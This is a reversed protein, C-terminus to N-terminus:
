EGAILRDVLATQASSIPKPFTRELWAFHEDLWRRRAEATAKSPMPKDPRLIYSRGDRRRIRAAGERDCTDLVVAPQRDLERVTFTRMDSLIDSTPPLPLVAEGRRSSLVQNSAM